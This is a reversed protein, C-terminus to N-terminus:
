RKQKAALDLKPYHPQHIRTAVVIKIICTSSVRQVDPDNHVKILPKKNQM